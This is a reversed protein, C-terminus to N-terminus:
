SLSVAAFNESEGDPLRAPVSAGNERYPTSETGILSQDPGETKMLSDSPSNESSKKEAEEEKRYHASIRIFVILLQDDTLRNINDATVPLPSGAAEAAADAYWTWGVICSRLYPVAIPRISALKRWKELEVTLREAEDADIPEDDRANLLSRSAVAFGKNIAKEQENFDATTIDHSDLRSQLAALAEDREAEIEQRKEEYEDEDITGAMLRREIQSVRKGARQMQESKFKMGISDEVVPGEPHVFFTITSRTFKVEVPVGEISAGNEHQSM